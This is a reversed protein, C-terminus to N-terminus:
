KEEVLVGDKLKLERDYVLNSIDDHSAIIVARKQEKLQGLIKM